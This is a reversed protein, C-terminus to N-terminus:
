PISLEQLLKECAERPDRHKTLPRGIVIYDAGNEFAELPTVTRSQDNPPAWAPRIGPTVVTFDRGCNEKISKVEQASAVVGDLGSEQALKAFHIVQSNVDRSFGIKSLEEQNLSTLVTVAIVMPRHEKNIGESVESVAEMMKKGGSAHVNLMWIGLKSASEVSKAVTNPIDHFKLDLFVNRGADHVMKVAEQGCATFLPSGVKFHKIHRGFAKVWSEAEKLSDTDLAVIVRDAYNM